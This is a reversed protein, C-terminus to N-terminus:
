PLLHTPQEEENEDAVIREIWEAMAVALQETRTKQINHGGGAFAIRPGAHCLKALEEPIEAEMYEDNQSWAIFTPTRLRRLEDVQERVVSFDTTGARVLGALYHLPPQGNPFQLLKTYIAKILYPTMSTIVPNGSRLLQVVFASERPRLIRHPRCGAPALLALGRFSIANNARDAANLAAMNIATHAGFSHGVLLVSSSGEQGGCLQRVADLTLQATPLASIDELCHAAAVTSGGYGPLTVGIIRM